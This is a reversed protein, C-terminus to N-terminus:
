GEGEKAERRLDDALSELRKWTPLDLGGIADAARGCLGRLRANQDRLASLETQLAKIEALLKFADEQETNQNPNDDLYNIALDELGEATENDMM